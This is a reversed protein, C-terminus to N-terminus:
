PEVTVFKRELTGDKKAVCAFFGKETSGDHNQAKVSCCRDTTVVAGNYKTETFAHYHGTFVAKLNYDNFRKLLAEANGSRNRVGPGLPYHTVLIMPKKKDLKELNADLWDFTPKQIQNALNIGNTSDLCVWQWGGM